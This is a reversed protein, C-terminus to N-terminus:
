GNLAEKVALVAALNPKMSKGVNRDYELYYRSALEWEPVELMCYDISGALAGEPLTVWDLRTVYGTGGCEQDHALLAVSSAKARMENHWWPHCEVRFLELLAKFKPDLGTGGCLHEGCANDTISHVAPCKKEELLARVEEIAQRLDTM